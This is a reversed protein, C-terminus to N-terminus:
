KIENQKDRKEEWIDKYQGMNKEIEQPQLYNQLRIMKGLQSDRTTAWPTQHRKFM